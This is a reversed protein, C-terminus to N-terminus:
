DGVPGGSKLTATAEEEELKQFNALNGAEAEVWQRFAYIELLREANEQSHELPEGGLRVDGKWSLLLHQAVIKRTLHDLKVPDKKHAAKRVDAQDALRAMAKRYAPSSTSGILFQCDDSFSRWVGEQTLTPDTALDKLDM